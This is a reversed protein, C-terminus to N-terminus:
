VYYESSWKDNSDTNQINFSIIEPLDLTESKEHPSKTEFSM